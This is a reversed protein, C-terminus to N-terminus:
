IYKDCPTCNKNETNMYQRRGYGSMKNRTTHANRGKEKVMVESDSYIDIDQFPGDDQSLNSEPM